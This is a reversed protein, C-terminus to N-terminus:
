RTSSRRCAAATSAATRTARSRRGRPRSRRQRPPHDRRRAASGAEDVVRGKIVGLEMQAVAPVAGCLLAVLGAAVGRDCSADADSAAEESACGSASSRDPAPVAGVDAGHLEAVLPQRDAGSRELRNFSTSCTSSSTSATSGGASRCSTASRVSRRHGVRSRPHRLARRPGPRRSGLPDAQAPRRHRSRGTTTTSTATSTAASRRTSRRAASPASCPPSPSRGGRTGPAAPRWCTPATPRSSATTPAPTTTSGCGAPTPTASASTTAGSCRTPSARRELPQGDAAGAVGAAVQLRRRLGDSTQSQLVRQFNM